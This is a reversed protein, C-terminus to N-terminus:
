DDNESGELFPWQNLLAFNDIKEDSFIEPNRAPPDPKISM